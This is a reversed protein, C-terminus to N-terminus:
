CNKRMKTAVPPPQITAVQYSGVRVILVETVRIITIEEINGSKQSKESREDDTGVVNGKQNCYSMIKCNQGM